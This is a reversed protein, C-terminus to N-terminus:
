QKLLPAAAVRLAEREDPIKDPFAGAIQQAMHRAPAGAAELSSTSTVQWLKAIAAAAAVLVAALTVAM